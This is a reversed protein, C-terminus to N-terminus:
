KNLRKPIIIKKVYKDVIKNTSEQWRKYDPHEPNELPSCEIFIKLQELIDTFIEKTTM